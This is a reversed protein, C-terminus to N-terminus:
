CKMKQTEVRPASHNSRSWHSPPTRQASKMSPALTAPLANAIFGSQRHEAGTIFCVSHGKKLHPFHSLQASITLEFVEQAQCPHPRVRHIRGNQPPASVAGTSRPTRKIPHCNSPLSLAPPTIHVHIHSNFTLTSLTSLTTIFNVRM